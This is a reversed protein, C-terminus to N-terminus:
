HLDIYLTTICSVAGQSSVHLGAGRSGNRVALPCAPRAQVFPLQLSAIRSALWQELQLMGRHAALAALDLAFGAPLIDLVAPM